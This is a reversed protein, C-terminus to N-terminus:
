ARGGQCLLAQGLWLALRQKGVGRPGVLLLSAPLTDRAISALLRERLAQHGFLPAIPM